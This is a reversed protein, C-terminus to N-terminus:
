VGVAVRQSSAAQRPLAEILEAARAAGGYRALADAMRRANDRFSRETLLREVARRLREPTCQDPDIRLGVGSEVVRQANEPKDWDTPVVVLPVGAALTSMVTGAGGMTVMASCRPMLYNHPVYREVRIHPPLTGLPLTAPDRHTGCTMVVDVDMDRFAAASARLLLPDKVHITAETVHILPRQSTRNMLWEPPPETSPATWPCPGVYHVTPPLDRRNYDFEPISPVMYLPVKGAYETVSMNIPSLGFSRRINDVANRFDSSFWNVAAREASARFRGFAGRPPAVGRGFAPADPGPLVCASFTSFVAVPIQTTEHVVLVPGWLATEQVIVDPRWASVIDNIDAVQDPVTAVLWEHLQTKLISARKLQDRVSKGIPLDIHAFAHVKEENVHKFPFCRFGEREILACASEGTYVAPEHGRARIAHALALAPNVHGPFPWFTLLVRV